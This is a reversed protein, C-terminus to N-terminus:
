GNANQPQPFSNFSSPDLQFTDFLSSTPDTPNSPNSSTSPDPSPTSGSPKNGISALLSTLNAPTSPKTNILGLSNFAENGALQQEQQQYPALAQALVDASITPSESLGREGLFAQVNNGVGQTLGASLPQQFKRLYAQMAVPDKGLKSLYDQNANTKRNQLWNSLFGGGGFGAKLLDMPNNKAFGAIAQGISSIAQM